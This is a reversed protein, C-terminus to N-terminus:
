ARAVHGRGDFLREFRQRLSLGLRELAAGPDAVAKGVSGAMHRLTTGLGKFLEPLYFAESPSLAPLGVVVIQDEAIPM